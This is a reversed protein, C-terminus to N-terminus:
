GKRSALSYLLPNGQGGQEKKLIAKQGVQWKIASLVLNRGIDGRAKVQNVIASQNLPEASETLADMVLTRAKQQKTEGLGEAVGTSFFRGSVLERGDNEYTWLAGFPPEQTDRSKTSRLTVNDSGEEREVMLALDVAGEISSHGRLTNGARSSDGKTRHHIAKMACGTTETVQRLGSMVAVMQSSNEDSGGSIAGLNDLVVFLAGLMRITAILRDISEEDSAVLPPLPFSTYHLPVDQGVGRGAALAAWRRELRDRGNDVDVWLVPAQKCAYSHDVTEDLPGPWALGAAVCIALDQMLMTKLNGPSGYVISLSPLPFLGDVIYERPPKPKCADALTRTTFCDAEDVVPEVRELVVPGNGGGVQCSDAIQPISPDNPVNNSSPATGSLTRGEGKTVENTM